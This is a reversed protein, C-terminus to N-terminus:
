TFKVGVETVGLVVRPPERETVFEAGPPVVSTVDRVPEAVAVLGGAATDTTDGPAPCVPVTTGTTMVPLPQVCKLLEEVILKTDLLVIGGDRVVNRPSRCIPSKPLNRSFAVNVKLPM